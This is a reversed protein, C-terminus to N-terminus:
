LRPHEGGLELKLLELKQQCAELWDLTYVLGYGAESRYIRLGREVVKDKLAKEVEIEDGSVAFYYIEHQIAVM